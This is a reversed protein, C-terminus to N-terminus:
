FSYQPNHPTPVEEEEIEIECSEYYRLLSDKRYKFKGSIPDAHFYPKSAAALISNTVYDKAVQMEDFTAVLDRITNSSCGYYGHDREERTGYLYIM